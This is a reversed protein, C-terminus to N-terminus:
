RRGGATFYGEAFLNVGPDAIMELVEHSLTPFYDRVVRTAPLGDELFHYGEDTTGEESDKIAILMAHKPPRKPEFLLEARWGWLPFFHENVQKQIAKVARKLAQKDVLKSECEVVITPSGRDFKVADNAM